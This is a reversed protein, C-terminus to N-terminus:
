TSSAKAYVTQGTICVNEGIPMIKVQSLSVSETLPLGGLTTLGSGCILPAIYWCVEDVSRHRFAQGLIDSGGEVLVSLVGHKGLELLV